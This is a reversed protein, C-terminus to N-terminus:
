YRNRLMERSMLRGGTNDLGQGSQQLCKAVDNAVEQKVGKLVLGGYMSGGYVNDPSTDVHLKMSSKTDQVSKESLTNILKNTAGEAMRFVGDYVYIVVFQVNMTEGSKNTFEAHVEFENKQNVGAVQLPLLSVDGKGFDLCIVSGSYKAWQSYALNYGNRYAMDYLQKNTQGTLTNQGNIRLTFSGENLAMHRLPKEGSVDTDRACIYMRRPIGSLQIAVDGSLSHGDAISVTNDVRLQAEYYPYLMSRPIDYDPQPTLYTFRLGFNTIEVSSTVAGLTGASVTFLPQDANYNFVNNLNGFSCNYQASEIGVLATANQANKGFVFPSLMLPEESTFTLTAVGTSNPAISAPFTYEINWFGARSVASGFQTSTSDYYPALASRVSLNVDEFTQYTDNMNPASSYYGDNQFRCLTERVIHANPQSVNANGITMDENTTIRTIPMYSPGQSYPNVKIDTMADTASSNTINFTVKFSAIKYVERSICINRNPPNCNITVASGISGNVNKYVTTILSASEASSYEQKQNLNLRPDIYKVFPVQSSM